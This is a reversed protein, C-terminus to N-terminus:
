SKRPPSNLAQNESIAGDVRCFLINGADTRRSLRRGCYPCWKRARRSEGEGPARIDAGDWSLSLGTVIFVDALLVLRRRTSRDAM